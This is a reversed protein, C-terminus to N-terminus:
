RSDTTLPMRSMDFISVPLKSIVGSGNAGACTIPLQQSRSASLARLGADLERRADGASRGSITASWRANLWIRILRIELAILNVSRPPRTVTLACHSPASCRRERDLVGADADAVVIQRAEALREELRARGVVAAVVAGPEAQRDDLAQHPQVAALHIDAAPQALARAHGHAQRDIAFARAPAASGISSALM